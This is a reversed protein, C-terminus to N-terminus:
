RVRLIATIFLSRYVRFRNQSLKSVIYCEERKYLRICGIVKKQDRKREKKGERKKGERKKKRGKKKVLAVIFHANRLTRRNRINNIIGCKVEILIFRIAYNINKLV